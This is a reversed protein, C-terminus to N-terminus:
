EVWPPESIVDLRVARPLRVLGEGHLEEVGDAPGHAVRDGRSRDQVVVSRPSSGGRNSPVCVRARTASALGRTECLATLVWATQFEAPLHLWAHEQLGAM